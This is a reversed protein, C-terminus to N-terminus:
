RNKKKMRKRKRKHSKEITEEFVFRRRVTAYRKQANRYTCASRVMLCVCDVRFFNIETMIYTLNESVM